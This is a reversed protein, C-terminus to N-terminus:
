GWDESNNIHWRINEIYEPIDTDEKQYWYEVAKQARYYVGQKRFAVMLEKAQTATKRSGLDQIMGDPYM